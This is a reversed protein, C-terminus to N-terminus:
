MPMRLEYMGSSNISLKKAIQAKAEMELQTPLAVINHPNISPANEIIVLAILNVYASGSVIVKVDKSANQDILTGYQACQEKMESIHVESCQDVKALVDNLVIVFDAQLFAEDTITHLTVKRLCPYALDEAEMKLGQLTAQSHSHDLLHLWIYKEMGFVDGSALMPILSYCAPM